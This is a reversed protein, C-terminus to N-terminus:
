ARRQLERYYSVVNAKGYFYWAAVAVYALLGVVRPFPAAEASRPAFTASTLAAICIMGMVLHRGWSRERHLAWAAAGIAPVILVLALFVPQMRQMFVARTVIQGNFTYRSGGALLMLVTTVVVCAVWFALFPALLRIFGPKRSRLEAAGADPLPTPIPNACHPCREAAVGDKLSVPRTCAPCLLTVSM